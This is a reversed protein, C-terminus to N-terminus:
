INNTIKTFESCWHYEIFYGGYGLENMMNTGCTIINDSKNKILYKCFQMASIDIKNAKQVMWADGEGRRIAQPLFTKNDLRVAIFYDGLDICNFNLLEPNSLSLLKGKDSELKTKSEILPKWERVSKKIRNYKYLESFISNDSVQFWLIITCITLIIAFFCLTSKKAVNIEKIEKERAYELNVGNVTLTTRDM